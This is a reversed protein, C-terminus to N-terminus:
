FRLHCLDVIEKPLRNWHKEIQLICTQGWSIKSLEKHHLLVQFPSQVHSLLARSTSPVELILWTWSRVALPLWTLYLKEQMHVSSLIQLPLVGDRFPWFLNQWLFEDKKFNLSEQLTSGHLWFLIAFGTLYLQPYVIHLYYKERGSSKSVLLGGLIDCTFLLDRRFISIGDSVSSSVDLNRLTTNSIECFHWDKM